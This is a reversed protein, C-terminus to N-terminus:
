KTISYSMDKAKNIRTCVDRMNPRNEPFEAACSLGINLISILRNEGWVNCDEVLADDVIELVRNPLKSAVWKQLNLGDEFIANTPKKRTFMELLLIGYSYVDGNTSVSGALGYEPPIYGISGKLGLTSSQHFSSTTDRLIRALGFDTVHATMDEDLLVNSPKLDCHLLPTGSEYHLYEVASAVNTAIDLRQQFNLWRKEKGQTEARGHLWNDLSGNPMFQLVLAKFDNTSCVSLVKVLNRHRINRLAECEALFSKTAGHQDLKFVKIAVATGDQMVGKYVSGFSGEGIMNQSNFNNSAAKLDYYSYLGHLHKISTNDGTETKNKRRGVRPLFLLLIGFGLIICLAVSGIVLGLVLRKKSRNSHNRNASCKALRFNPIGGCLEPNGFLFTGTSNLFIGKNPVEGHLKNSSLNLFQLFQLSQLSSPFAGALQNSSLDLYEIAKLKSLSGPITGQFFNRALDLYLLNSCDGIALPITGSLQNNSIDIAQVTKLNGIETPLSGTLSNWSLNLLTGLNPYAFIEKPISGDLKNLSLDLTQLYQCNSLSSPISGTFNNSNLDLEYLESLNGLSAPISGSFHNLHLTLTQLNKLNGITSPIRGTFSNSELSLQILSGLNGIEEPLNGEFHNEGMVLLSLQSSLNGISPPIRGNLQNTAVSFVRLLTSNILSTIFDLGHEDNSSLQNFELNLIKIKPLNRFVPIQGTFGNVSLDLFELNSANSLSTPIPGELLNGGVFLTALNPLRYFMDSPLRGSIRNKAVVFILLSSINFISTPIEDMINNNDGLHLQLLAQLRGLEAPINGHLNNSMLILNNLSTCNGLSPPIIGTLNNKAFSLDQLESLTGLEPIGGELMNKSFDIVRLRSCHGLSFPITEHFANSALILTQLRVLRGLDRPIFGGFSNNQLDLLQLFSLNTIYPSITGVLSHNGLALGTVRQKKANCYVGKWKCFTMNPNWTELLGNPDSTIYSKFSLLADQDTLNSLHPQTLSESTHLSCLLLVSIFLIFLKM